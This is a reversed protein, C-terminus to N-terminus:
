ETPPKVPEAAIQAHVRAAHAKAQKILIEQCEALAARFEAQAPVSNPMGEYITWVEGLKTVILRESFSLNYFAEATLPESQVQVPMPQYKNTPHFPLSGERTPYFEPNPCAANVAGHERWRKGCHNCLAAQKSM